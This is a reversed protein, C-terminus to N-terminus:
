HCHLKWGVRMESIEHTYTEHQRELKDELEVVKASEELAEDLATSVQADKYQVCLPQTRNRM